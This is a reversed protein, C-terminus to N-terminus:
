ELLKLLDNKKLKQAEENTILNKNVVLERLEDVRLKNPNKKTIDIGETDTIPILKRSNINSIDIAQLDKSLDMDKINDVGEVKCVLVEDIIDDSTNKDLNEVLDEIHLEKKNDSQEDHNNRDQDKNLENLINLKLGLIDDNDESDNDDDSDSNNDSLVNLKNEVNGSDNNDDNNYDSDSNYDEDDSVLIKSSVDKVNANELSNELPNELNLNSNSSVFDAQQKEMLINNNMNYNTIFEQMVKGQQILANELVNLRRYCYIM